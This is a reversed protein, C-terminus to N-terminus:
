NTTVGLPTVGYGRAGRRARRPRQLRSGEFSSGRSLVALARPDSEVTFPILGGPICASLAAHERGLGTALRPRVGLDPQQAVLGVQDDTEIGGVLVDLGLVGEVQGRARVRHVHGGCSPHRGARCAGRDVTVARDVFRVVVVFFPHDLRGQGEPGRLM